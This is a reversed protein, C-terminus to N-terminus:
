CAQRTSWSTGSKAKLRRAPTTVRRILRPGGKEASKVSQSDIVAATPSATRGDLERCEMYLAHHIRDLTGDYDWRDFYGHVTSRPPLDKPIDRWQCGTGLVYMLGNLVERINVTRKNGGRRAPPIFPEVAAWEEDTLDHTYRLGARDHRLRTEVTWM